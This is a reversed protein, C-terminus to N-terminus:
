AVELAFADRHHFDPRGPAHKLAWFSMGGDEQEVVVALGLALRGRLSLAAPDVLASLELRDDFRQASIQPNLSEDQVVNGERYASFAYATWEGSPSFNLEHYRPDGPSRLFVECCTHRWLKYGIRPERPAPIQLRAMDGEISYMLALGGEATRGAQASVRRVPGPRSDPHAVLELM